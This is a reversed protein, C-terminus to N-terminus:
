HKRSRTKTSRKKKSKTRRRRRAVTKTKRRRRTTKKSRRRSVSTPVRRVRGGILQYDQPYLAALNTMMLHDSDIPHRAFRDSHQELTRQLSSIDFDGDSQEFINSKYSTM